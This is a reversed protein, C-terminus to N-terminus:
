FRVQKQNSLLHLKERENAKLKEAKASFEQELQFSIDINLPNFVVKQIVITENYLTYMGCIKITYVNNNNNNRIQLYNKNKHGWNTTFVLYM